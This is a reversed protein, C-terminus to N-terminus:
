VLKSILYNVIYVVSLDDIKISMDDYKETNVASLILSGDEGKRIYRLMYVNNYLLYYMQGYVISTRCAKKLLVFSSNPVVPSMADGDVRVGLECDSFLMSEVKFIHNQTNKLSEYIPVYRKQLSVSKEKNFMQGEGTFLWLMNIEPYRCAVTDALKRSVGNKERRIRYLNESRKLGLEMAFAHTSLGTWKIVEELREWANM